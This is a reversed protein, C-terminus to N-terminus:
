YQKPGDSLDAYTTEQYECLNGLEIDPAAECEETYKVPGTQSIEEARQAGVCDLSDAIFHYRIKVEGM